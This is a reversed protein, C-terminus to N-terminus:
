ERINYILGACRDGFLSLYPSVIFLIFFAMAFLVVFSVLSFGGISFPSIAIGLFMLIVFIVAVVVVMIALSILIIGLYTLVFNGVGISKMINILSKVDFAAKLSDDNAAMHPIALYAFLEAIFLLILGLAFLLGAFDNSLDAAFIIILVPIILYVFEVVVYKLGNIFLSTFDGFEPPIDGGNIMSETSSKIVRYNYGEVIIAPIILFWFLSLVGMVLLTSVNRSSYEFSDKYIDLIM